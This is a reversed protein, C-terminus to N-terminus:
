EDVSDEEDNNTHKLPTDGSDALSKLVETRLTKYSKSLDELRYQFCSISLEIDALQEYLESKKM